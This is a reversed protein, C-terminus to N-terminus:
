NRDVQAYKIVDRVYDNYNPPLKHRKYYPMITKPGANYASIAYLYDGRFVKLYDYFIKASVKANLEPKLLDSSKISKSYHNKATKLHIQGIGFAAYKKTKKNYDGKITPDYTLILSERKWIGFLMRWYIDHEDSVSRALDKYFLETYTSKTSVSTERKLWDVPLTSPATSVMPILFVVILSMLKITKRM